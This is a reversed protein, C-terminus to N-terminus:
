AHAHAIMVCPTQGERSGLLLPKTIHGPPMHRLFIPSDLAVLVGDEETTHWRHTGTQRPNALVILDYLYHPGPGVCPPQPHLFERLDCGHPFQFTSAQPRSLSWRSTKRLLNAARALVLIYATTNMIIAKSVCRNERTHVELM